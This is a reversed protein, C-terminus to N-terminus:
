QLVVPRPEPQRPAFIARTVANQVAQPSFPKRIVPGMPSLGLRDFEGSCGTVFIVPLGFLDRLKQAVAIGNDGRALGVDLLALTPREANVLALAERETAATGCVEHGMSTIMESLDIAAIANDEVVLVRAKLSARLMERSRTLAAEAREATMGLVHAAEPLPLEELACLLYLRREPEPLSALALELPSDGPLPRGEGKGDFLVNILAYLPARSPGPVGFRTPAMVAAEVCRTVLDDGDETCGTLARAYRRLYPLHEYLQRAYVRMDEIVSPRGGLRDKYWTAAGAHRGLRTLALGKRLAPFKGLAKGTRENV